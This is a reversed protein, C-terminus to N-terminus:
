GQLCYWLGRSRAQPHLM